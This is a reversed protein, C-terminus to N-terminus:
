LIESIVWEDTAILDKLSKHKGSKTQGNKLNSIKVKLNRPIKVGKSFYSSHNSEIDVGQSPIRFEFITKGNANSIVFDGAHIIDMGILVDTNGLDAVMVKLTQFVIRNPLVIHLYYTDCRKTGHVGRSDIKGAPKLGLTDIVKQSVVTNTAGTDWIADFSIAKPRKDAPTKDINFPPLLEVPTKIVNVIGSYTTRFRHAM